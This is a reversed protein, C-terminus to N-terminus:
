LGDSFAWPSALDPDPDSDADTDFPRTTPNPCSFGPVAVTNNRHQCWKAAFNSLDM